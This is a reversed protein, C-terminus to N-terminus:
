ASLQQLCVIPVLRDNALIIALRAVFLDDKHIYALSMNTQRNASSADICKSCTVWRSLSEQYQHLSIM